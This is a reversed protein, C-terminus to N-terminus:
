KCTVFCVGTNAADDTVSFGVVSHTGVTADDAKGATASIKLATAETVTTTASLIQTDSETPGYVVVKGAALNAIAEAAVGVVGASANAIAAKISNGFGYTSKSLDVQVWLGKTIAAGSENYFEKYETAGAKPPVTSDGLFQLSM